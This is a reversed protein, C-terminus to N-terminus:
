PWRGPDRDEEELRRWAEPIAAIIDESQLGRGLDLSARLGAEAHAWAGLLTMDLPRDPRQALLSGILGTLVDGTGGRAMHPHGGAITYLLGDPGAVETPAGKHLLVVSDRVAARLTEERAAELEAAPRGLLAGLEGSHPTLIRPAPHASLEDYAERYAFLADADLIAPLELESLWSRVLGLTEEGRGLGPGLAVADVRAAQERLPELASPALAGDNDVPLSLTVASRWRAQVLPALSAPVGVYVMGAGGRLAAGATLLAAGGYRRSGAVILLSGRRYKHGTPEHLPLCERAGTEDVLRRELAMADIIDAPFGIDICHVEGAAECGPYYYLGLKPLGVTATVQARVTERRPAGADGSLGSPVDVSLIRAARENMMGVIDLAPERLDADIGTGFLCDVVLEAGGLRAAFSEMAKPDSFKTLSPHLPILRHLAKKADPSLNMDEALVYVAVEAGHEMLHRAIVFGDGGNNGKGCVLVIPRGELRGGFRRRILEFIGRGAREMLEPGPVHGGDITRRDIERMQATSVLHM